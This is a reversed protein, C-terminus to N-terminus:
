QGPSPPLNQGPMPPLHPTLVTPPLPPFHAPNMKRNNELDLVAAEASMQPALNPSPPQVLGGSRISRTPISRFGGNANQAAAGVNGPQVGAATEQYTPAAGGTMIVGNRGGNGPTYNYNPQGANAQPAGPVTPPTVARGPVPMGPNVPPPSAPTSKAVRFTLNTVIPGNRIVVENKDVDISIVEVSEIKEGVELVPKIMQKGPGPIIELLARPTSLIGVGTIGTLEVTAPPTPPVVPTTTPIEQPPPPDKLHFPNRDVIESYRSIDADAWVCVTGVLLLSAVASTATPRTKPWIMPAFM